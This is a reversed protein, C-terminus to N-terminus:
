NGTNPWVLLITMFMKREKIEEKTKRLFFFIKKIALAHLWLWVSTCCTIHVTISTKKKIILKMKKIQNIILICPDGFLSSWCYFISSSMTLLWIGWLELSAQQPTSGWVVCTKIHSRVPLSRGVSIFLWMGAAWCSM